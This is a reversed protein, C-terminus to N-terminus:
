THCSIESHNQNENEWHNTISLMKEQVQQGDTHRRQFFFTRQGNEGIRFMQKGENSISKQIHIGQKLSSGKDETIKQHICDTNRIM